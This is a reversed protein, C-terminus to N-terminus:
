RANHAGAPGGGGEGATRHRTARGGQGEAGGRGPPHQPRTGFLVSFERARCHEDAAQVAALSSAGGRSRARRKGPACGLAQRASRHHILGDGQDADVVAASLFSLFDLHSVPSLLSLPFSPPVFVRVQFIQLADNTHVALAQRLLSQLSLGVQYFEQWDAHEVM